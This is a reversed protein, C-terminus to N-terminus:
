CDRVPPERTMELTWLPHDEPCPGTHAISEVGLLWRLFGELLFEIYPRM